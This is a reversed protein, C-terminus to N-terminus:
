FLQSKWLEKNTSINDDCSDSLALGREWFPQKPQLPKHTHTHIDINLSINPPNLFEVHQMKITTSLMNHLDCEKM